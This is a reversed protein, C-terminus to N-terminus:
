GGGFSARFGNILAEEYDTIRQTSLLFEFFEDDEDADKSFEELAAFIKERTLLQNQYAIRGVTVLDDDADPDVFHDFYRTMEHLPALVKKSMTRILDKDVKPQGIMATALRPVKAEGGALALNTKKRCEEVFAKTTLKRSVLWESFIEDDKKCNTYAHQLLITAHDKETLIGEEMLIDGIPIFEGEKIKQDQLRKVRRLEEHDAQTTSRAIKLYLTTAKPPM